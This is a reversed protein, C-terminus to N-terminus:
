TINQLTGANIGGQGGQIHEMLADAYKKDTEVANIFKDFAKKQAETAGDKSKFWQMPTKGMTKTEDPYWKYKGNELKFRGFGMEGMSSDVIIDTGSVKVGDVSVAGFPGINATIAEGNELINAKGEDTSVISLNGMETYNTTYQDGQNNESQNNDVNFQNVGLEPNFVPQDGQNGQDGQNNIGLKQNEIDELKQQGEEETMFVPKQPASGRISPDLTAIYVQESINTLFSSLLNNFLERYEPKTILEKTIRTADDQTVSGGNTDLEKVQQETLNIGLDKYTGNQLGKIMDKEFNRNGFIDHRAISVANGDVVFTKNKDFEVQWQFDINQGPQLSEAQKIKQEVNSRYKEISVEDMGKSNIMDIFESHTVFELGEPLDSVDNKITNLDIRGTEKYADRGRTDMDLEGAGEGDGLNNFISDPNLYKEYYNDIYNSLIGTDVESSFEYMYPIQADDSKPKDTKSADLDAQSNNVDGINGTAIIYGDEGNPGKIPGNTIAREVNVKMNEDLVDDGPGSANQIIKGTTEAVEDKLIVNDVKQKGQKVIEQEMKGRLRRDNLYVYRFRKVNLNKYVNDMEEETIGPKKSQLSILRNFDRNRKQIVRATGQGLYNSVSQLAQAGALNGVGEARAVAGAGAVLGTNMGFSQKNKAM